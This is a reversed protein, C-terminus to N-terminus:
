PTPVDRKQAREGEGLWWSGIPESQSDRAWRASGGPGKSATCAGVASHGTVPLSHGEVGLAFTFRLDWDKQPQRPEGKLGM